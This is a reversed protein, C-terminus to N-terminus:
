HLMRSDRYNCDCIFSWRVGSWLRDSLSCAGSWFNQDLRRFSRSRNCRLRDIYLEASTSLFPFADPYVQVVRIGLTVIMM